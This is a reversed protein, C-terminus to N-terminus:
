DTAISPINWVVDKLPQTLFGQLKLSGEVTRRPEGSSVIAQWFPHCGLRKWWVVTNKVDVRFVQISYLPWDPDESLM